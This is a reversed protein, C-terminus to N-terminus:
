GDQPPNNPDFEHIFIQHLSPYREELEDAGWIMFDATGDYDVYFHDDEFYVLEFYVNLDDTGNRSYVVNAM